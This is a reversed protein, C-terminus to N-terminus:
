AHLAGPSSVAKLFDVFREFTHNGHGITYLDM